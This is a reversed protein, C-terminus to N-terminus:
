MTSRLMCNLIVNNALDTDHNFILMSFRFYSLDVNNNEAPIYQSDDDLDRNLFVVNQITKICSVTKPANGIRTGLNFTIKIKPEKSKKQKKGYIVFGRLHLPSRSHNVVPALRSVTADM